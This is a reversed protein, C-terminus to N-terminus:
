IFCRESASVRTVPIPCADFIHGPTDSKSVIGSFFNKPTSVQIAVVSDLTVIKEGNPTKSKEAEPRSISLPDALPDEDLEVISDSSEDDDDGDRSDDVVRHISVNRM